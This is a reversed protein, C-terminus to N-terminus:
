APDLPTATTGTAPLLPLPAVGDLAALDEPAAMRAHALERAEAVIRLVGAPDLPAALDPPVALLIAQPARSGPADFGFAATTTHAQSPITETFRDLLGIAVQQTAPLAALDLGAPAWAAVLRRGDSADTQWPDAPRNAWAALPPGTGAPTDAALQAAELRALPARVAAALRLWSPELGSAQTLTPLADRRARGLVALQGTASALRAIARALDLHDLGAATGPAAALRERLLDRARAVQGPLPDAAGAAPPPAVGWRAALALAAAFETASAAADLRAALAGAVTRLRQYRDGLDAVITAPPAAPAAEALDLPRAPAQGALGALRVARDYRDSGDRGTLSADDGVAALVLRELDALPLALAEAPSLGLTALTVTVAAGGGAPAATWSWDGAAGLRTAVWAAWAADALAAPSVAALADQDSPLAPTAADPLVLACTTEVARGERATRLVELSPPRALGAAADMAAGAAEPRGQVADNVAEAVLLDAYADVASRLRELRALVAAPLGLTAPDAALVAQGDCVRRGGHETRIPYDDRLQQVAAPDGAAREVERGLVEALHGGFAVQAAIRAADRAATSTVDMHWRGPEADRVARDRLLAAVVAQTASPAHLLGGSTPGPTGPRPQDVWGYAGLRQDAQGAALLEGLRRLPPGTTWADVRQGACDITAPLLRELEEEPIGAAATGLVAAVRRFAVAEPGPGQLDGPRVALIDDALLTRTAPDAAVLELAPPPLGQNARGVAAVALQLSRAALVLLLSGGRLIEQVLDRLNVLLLPNQQVQLVLLRLLDGVPMGEPLRPPRVLPLRVRRASGRGGYRRAPALGFAGVLRYTRDWAAVLDPWSIATGTAHLAALWLELPDLLRTTYGPSWAPHGVLDLLHEADAGVATRKAREAARALERRALALAAPMGAEVPPDGPGPQWAALETAPLLGYPQAGVRVAPHPGTPCLFREAWAGLEAAGAGLGFVDGLTHGWLAPWMGAVLLRAWEAHPPPNGPLAGLLQPDGTLALSAGQETADASRRLLALWAAPDGGLDATPRGDVTNTPTGYGVLGLQGADRHSAFLQAPASSGLGVVYLVDVDDNVLGLDIKAALGAAAAEDWSEWWRRDGPVTPDPPDLRLRAANVTLTAALAPAGGGRALWVELQEPLGALETFRPETRLQAPRPVQWRGDPDPGTAPFARLLWAARGAGVQRSFADWAAEGAPDSPLGGGAANLFRDLADLEAASAMPDHRDLWPEDPIVRLRLTSGDFRTELRLPLLVGVTIV